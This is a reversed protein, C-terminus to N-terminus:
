VTKVTAAINGWSLERTIREQGFSTNSATESSRWL